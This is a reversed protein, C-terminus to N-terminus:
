KEIYKGVASLNKFLTLVIAGRDIQLQSVKSIRTADDSSLHIGISLEHEALVASHNIFSASNDFGLADAQTGSNSLLKRLEEFSQEARSQTLKSLSDPSPAQYLSETRKLRKAEPYILDRNVEHSSPSQLATSFSNVRPSGNDLHSDQPNPGKTLPAPHYVCQDPKNRKACRRCTLVLAVDIFYIDNVEWLNADHSRM